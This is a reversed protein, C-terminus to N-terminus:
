FRVQVIGTTQPVRPSLPPVSQQIKQITQQPRVFKITQGGSSIINASTDLLDFVIIFILKLDITNLHDAHESTNDGNNL